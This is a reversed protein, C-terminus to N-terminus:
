NRNFTWLCGSEMLFGAALNYEESDGMSGYLAGLWDTLNPADPDEDYFSQPPHSTWDAWEPRMLELDQGSIVALENMSGNLSHQEEGLLEWADVMYYLPLSVQDRPVAIWVGPNSPDEVWRLAHNPDNLTETNGADGDDVDFLDWWMQHVLGELNAATVNELPDSGNTTHDVPNVCPALAGMAPWQDLRSKSGGVDTDGHVPQEADYDFWVVGGWFDAWGEVTTSSQFEPCYDPHSGDSNSDCDFVSSWGSYANQESAYTISFAERRYAMAHVHHGLEHGLTHHTFGDDTQIYILPGDNISTSGEPGVRRYRSKELRSNDYAISLRDNACDNSPDADDAFELTCSTTQVVGLDHAVQFSETAILFLNSRASLQAISSEDYAENLLFTETGQGGAGFYGDEHGISYMTPTVAGVNDVITALPNLPDEFAGSIEFVPDTTEPNPDALSPHGGEYYAAIFLDPFDDNSVEPFDQQVLPWSIWIRACGNEDTYVPGPGDVYSDPIRLYYNAGIDVEEYVYLRLRQLPQIDHYCLTEDLGDVCWPAYAPYVMPRRDGQLGTGNAHWTPFAEFCIDLDVVGGWSFPDENWGGQDWSRLPPPPVVPLGADMVSAMFVPVQSEGDDLLEFAQSMALDGSHIPEILDGDYYFGLADRAEFRPVEAKYGHPQMGESVFIAQLYFPGGSSLNPLVDFRYTNEQGLALIGKFRAWTPQIVLDVFTGEGGIQFAGVIDAKGGTTLTLNGEIDKIDPGVETSKNDRLVVTVELLNGNPVVDLITVNAAKDYDPSDISLNYGDLVADTASAGNVVSIAFATAFAFVALGLRSLHM